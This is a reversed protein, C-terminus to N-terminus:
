PKFEKFGLLSLQARAADLNTATFLPLLADVNPPGDAPISATENTFRKPHEARMQLEFELFSMSSLAGCFHRDCEFWHGDSDRAISISQIGGLHLDNYRIAIWGGNTPTIFAGLDTVARQMEAPTKAVLLAQISERRHKSRWQPPEIYFVYVFFGMTLLVFIIAIIKLIRM